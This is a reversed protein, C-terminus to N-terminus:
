RRPRFSIKEQAAWSKADKVADIESAHPFYCTNEPSFMNCEEDWTLLVAKWGAVPKYTTIFPAKPNARKCTKKIHWLSRLEGAIQEKLGEGFCCVMRGRTQTFFLTSHKADKSQYGFIGLEQCSLVLNQGQDGARKAYWRAEEKDM